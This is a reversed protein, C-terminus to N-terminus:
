SVTLFVRVYPVIALEVLWLFTSVDYDYLAIAAIGTLGEDPDKIIKVYNAAFFPRTSYAFALVQNRRRRLVSFRVLFFVGSAELGM